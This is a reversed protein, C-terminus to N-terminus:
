LRSSLLPPSLSPSSLLPSSVLPSSLLVHSPLRFAKLYNERSISLLLAGHAGAKAFHGRSKGKMVEDIGITM